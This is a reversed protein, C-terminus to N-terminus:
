LVPAMAGAWSLKSATAPAGGPVAAGPLAARALMVGSDSPDACSSGADAPRQYRTSSCCCGTWSRFRQVLEFQPSAARSVVLCDNHVEGTGVTIFYASTM